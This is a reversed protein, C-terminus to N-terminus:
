TVIDKLKKGKEKLKKLGKKKNVGNEQKKKKKNKKKEGDTTAGSSNTDKKKRKKTKQYGNEKKKLVTGTEVVHGDAKYSIHGNAGHQVGDVKGDEKDVSKENREVTPAVVVIGNKHKSEEPMHGNEKAKGKNSSNNSSKSSSSANSPSAGADSAPAEGSEASAISSKKKYYLKPPDRKQYAEPGQGRIEAIPPCNFYYKGPRNYKPKNWRGDFTEYFRGLAERPSMNYKFYGVDIVVWKKGDFIVNLDKLNQVYIGRASLSDFIEMLKVFPKDNLPRGRKNWQIFWHDGRTGEIWEKVLYDGGEEIIEAYPLGLAALKVNKEVEQHLKRFQKESEKKPVKLAFYKSKSTEGTVESAKKVKFVVGAHGDNIRTVISYSKGHEPTTIIMGPRWSEFDRGIRLRTDNLYDVDKKKKKSKLPQLHLSTDVQTNTAGEPKDKKKKSKRLM